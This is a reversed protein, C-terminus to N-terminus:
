EIIEMVKLIEVWYFFAGNNLKKLKNLFRYEKEQITYEQSETSDSDYKKLPSFDNKKIKAAMYAAKASAEIAEDIRFNETILNNKFQLLGLRLEKFKSKDPEQKNRERKAILLATIIIDNLVDDVSLSSNRYAIEHAVIKNFSAAVMNFDTIHDFLKGVDFLQKIIQHSKFSNYPVGTTNPAFATLKDGTIANVSPLQVKAVPQNDDIKLWESIIPASIMEPYLSKSLLIDLMISNHQQQWKSEFFLAYHAKPIGSQYSRAEDLKWSQFHSQEIVKDLAIEIEAQSAVSIIDIDISFRKAPNLLLILCTGGKFVFDLGTLQLAELLALAHIMKELVPPNIKRYAKQQKFQLVWEKEFSKPHIM